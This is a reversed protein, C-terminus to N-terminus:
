ESLRKRVRVFRADEKFGTKKYFGEATETVVELRQVSNQRLFRFARAMLGTGIRRNRYEPLVCIVNIVATSKDPEGIRCVVYGVVQDDVAAVYVKVDDRGIRRRMGRKFREGDAKAYWPGFEKFSERRVRLQQDLDEVRLERIVVGDPYVLDEKIALNKCMYAGEHFIKFGFKEFFAVATPNEIIEDYNEMLVVGQSKAWVMANRMLKTGIGRRQFSPLVCIGSIYGVLGVQPRNETTALVYGVTEDDYEAMFATGENEELARGFRNEFWELTMPNAWSSRLNRFAENYIRIMDEIDSQAYGRIEVGM